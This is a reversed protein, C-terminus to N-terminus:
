NSQADWILIGNKITKLIKLDILNKADIKLPNKDLIVFDAKKGVSISGKINEEFYQYAANITVGKLADLASIKEGLIRGSRTTRNVASWICHIVNPVSVPPDQHLTFPMGKELATAIPILKEARNLGVSIDVYYDGFLNLAGNFFSPIINLEKMRQLQDSSVATAHLMVPRKAVRGGCEKSAKEYCRIFQECALDGIAHAIPQWDNEICQKFFDIVHEDKHIPYGSYDKPKEAAITLYPESLWATQPPIGGDLFLKAGGMKLHNVYKGTPFEKNNLGIKAFEDLPYCVIDLYLLKRKAASILTEYHFDRTAGEQVTTIGFSAYYKQVKQLQLIKDELTPQPLTTLILNFASEELIGDPESTGLVRNILGGSPNPTNNNIGLLELAKSNVVGRHLSDHLLAIPYEKSIKDLDFKTPHTKEKLMTHDYAYGVVWDNKKPPCKKIHYKLNSIIQDISTIDALPPSALYVYDSFEAVMAVHGHSDIFGPLITTGNLDYFETNKDAKKFVEEESGVLKIEGDCVWLAAVDKIEDDLTIIDGGFYIQNSM